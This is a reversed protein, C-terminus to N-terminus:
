PEKATKLSTIKKDITDIRHQLIKRTNKLTGSKMM